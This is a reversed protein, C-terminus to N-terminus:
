VMKSTEPAIADMIQPFSYGVIFGTIRHFRYDSGLPHRVTVYKKTIHVIEGVYKCTNYNFTDWVQIKDGVKRSDCHVPNM